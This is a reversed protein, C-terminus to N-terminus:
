RHSSIPSGEFQMAVAVRDDPSVDIHRISLQHWQPEPEQLQLLRGSAVDVYALSPRMNALNSKIRPLDPHTRIGGNAIVLTSGDAM